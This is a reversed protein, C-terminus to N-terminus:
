QKATRIVVYSTRTRPAEINDEYQIFCVCRSPSAKRVAHSISQTNHEGCALVASVEGGRWKPSQTNCFAWMHTIKHRLSHTQRWQSTLAVLHVFLPHYRHTHKQTYMTTPYLVYVYNENAYLLLVGDNFFLLPRGFDTALRTAPFSNNSDYCNILIKVWNKTIRFEPIEVM